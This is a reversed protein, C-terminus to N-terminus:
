KSAYEKGRAQCRTYGNAQALFAADRLGDDDQQDFHYCGEDGADPQRPTMPRTHAQDTEKETHSPNHHRDQKDNQRWRYTGQLTMETGSSIPGIGTTWTDM